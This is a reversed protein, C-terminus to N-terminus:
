PRPNQAIGGLTIVDPPITLTYRADGPLLTYSTGSLNRTLTDKMGEKNLRRLDTWRIGRFALEKRREQLIIQKAEQQSSATLPIFSGNRKWRSALLTNLDSMARATDGVRAYCEARILYLEDTALGSFPLIGAAYSGKLYPSGALTTKYFIVRRLDNSDYSRYLNSDIICQPYVVGQLARTYLLFNSQYIVEDYNPTRIPFSSAANLTDYTLLKSYSQLAMDAYKSAQDYARMSLYVRALMAWAAPQAPRNRNTQPIMKPLLPVAQKLDSIIQTYTEQLTSRASPANIDSHLRLPIGLDTNATASDYVPAFLQAISYFAYARSFLATGDLTNWQAFNSSDTKIGPLGDLVVNAYFVQKYPINWDDVQRQGGYISPAWNYANQEVIDLGTWFNYTLYFNDASLEGLVPTLNFVATNDLLAQFDMLTSPVVLNTDPKQALFNDKKHCATLIGIGALCLALVLRRVYFLRKM